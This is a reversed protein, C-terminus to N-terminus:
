ESRSSKIAVHGGDTERDSIDWTNDLFLRDGDASSNAGSQVPNGDHRDLSSASRNDDQDM